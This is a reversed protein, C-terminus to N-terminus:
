KIPEWKEMIIDKEDLLYYLWDIAAAVIKFAM